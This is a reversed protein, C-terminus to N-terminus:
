ILLYIMLMHTRHITIGSNKLNIQITLSQNLKVMIGLDSLQYNKMIIAKRLHMELIM